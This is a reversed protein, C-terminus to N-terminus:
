ACEVLTLLYDVQGFNWSNIKINVGFFLNSYKIKIDLRACKVRKKEVAEAREGKRELYQLRLGQM